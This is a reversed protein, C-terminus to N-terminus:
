VLKCKSIFGEMFYCKLVYYYVEKGIDCVDITIECLTALYESTDSPPRFCCGTLHSQIYLAIGGGNIRRDKRYIM